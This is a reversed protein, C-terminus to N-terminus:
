LYSKGILKRFEERTHTKEFEKQCEQKLMINISKEYQAGDKSRHCFSCLYVWFGNADSIRRNAIGAYIHHAELGFQRGCLYCQKPEMPQLISNKM